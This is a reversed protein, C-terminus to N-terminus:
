QATEKTMILGPSNGHRTQQWVDPLENDEPIFISDHVILKKSKPKGKFIVHIGKLLHVIKQDVSQSMPPQIASKSIGYYIMQDVKKELLSVRSTMYSEPNGTEKLKLCRRVEEVVENPDKFCPYLELIKSPREDKKTEQILQRRSSFELNLYKNIVKPNPKCKRQERELASYHRACLGTDENSGDTTETSSSESESGKKLPDSSDGLEPMDLKIRKNSRAPVKGQRKKAPVVNGLRKKIKSLVFLHGSESGTLESARELCPYKQCLVKAMEGMELSTPERPVPLSHCASRMNSVTNRILRNFLDQSIDGTKASCVIENDTYVVFAPSPAPTIVQSSTLDVSAPSPPSELWSSPSRLLQSQSIGLHKQVPPTQPNVVPTQNIKVKASNPSELMKEKCGRAKEIINWIKKRLLFKDAGAFLDKLDDRSFDMLMDENVSADQLIDYAEIDLKRIDEMSM